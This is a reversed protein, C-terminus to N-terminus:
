EADDTEQPASLLGQPASSSAPTTWGSGTWTFVGKPTKYTTNAKRDKQSVPAVPIDLAANPNLSRLIGGVANTRAQYSPMDETEGAKPAMANLASLRLHNIQLDSGQSPLRPPPILHTGPSGPRYVLKAGPVGPVDAYVPDGYNKGETLAKTRAADQALQHKALDDARQQMIDARRDSTDLGEKELAIRDQAAKAEQQRYNELRDAALRTMANEIAQQALKSQNQEHEMQLRQQNEFARTAQDYITNGLQAGAATAHLFDSPQINLWPPLSGLAM